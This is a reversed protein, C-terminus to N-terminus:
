EGKKENYFYKEIHLMNKDILEHKLLNNIKQKTKLSLSKMTTLSEEASKRIREETANDIEVPKIPTHLYTKHSLEKSAFKIIDDLFKFLRLLYIEMYCLDIILYCPSGFLKIYIANKENEKNEFLRLDNIQFDKDIQELWELTEKQYSAVNMPVTKSRISSGSSNIKHNLIYPLVKQFDKEENLDKFIKVLRQFIEKLNPSNSIINLIKRIESIEKDVFEYMPALLNLNIIQYSTYNNSLRFLNHKARLLLSYFNDWNAGCVAPFTAIFERQVNEGLHTLKNLNEHLWILEKAHNKDLDEFQQMYYFQTNM